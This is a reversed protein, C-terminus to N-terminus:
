NGLLARKAPNVLGGSAKLAELVARASKKSTTIEPRCVLNELATALGLKTAEKLVKDDVRPPAVQVGKGTKKADSPQTSQAGRARKPPTEVSKSQRARKEQKLGM